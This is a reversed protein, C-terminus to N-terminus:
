LWRCRSALSLRHLPPAARGPSLFLSHLDAVSLTRRRCRRHPREQADTAAPTRSAAVQACAAACRQRVGAESLLECRDLLLQAAKLSRVRFQALASIAERVLTFREGRCIRADTGKQARHMERVIDPLPKGAFGYFDDESMSLGHQPCVEAWSHYFLPMTDILTGDCDFLLGALDADAVFHSGVTRQGDPLSM